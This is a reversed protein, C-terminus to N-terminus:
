RDAIEALKRVYKRIRSYYIFRFLFYRRYDFIQTLMNNLFPRVWFFALCAENIPEFISEYGAKFHEKMRDILHSRFYPKNLILMDLYCYFNAIDYYRPAIKSDAFDTLYLTKGKILLNAPSFDGHNFVVFNSEQAASGLVIHAYNSCIKDIILRVCGKGLFQDVKNARVYLYKFLVNIDRELFAKEVKQTSHLKGLFRGAQYSMEFLLTSRSLCRGKKSIIDEFTVCGEIGEFVIGFLEPCVCIPKIIRLGNDCNFTAYSHRSNKYEKLIRKKLWSEDCIEKYVKIFLTNESSTVEDLLKCLFGNSLRRNFCETVEFSKRPINCCDLIDSLKKNLKCSNTKKIFLRMM